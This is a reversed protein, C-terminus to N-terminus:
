PTILPDEDFTGAIHVVEGATLLGKTALTDVLRGFAQTQKYAYDEFPTDQVSAAIYEGVDTTTRPQFGRGLPWYTIKM